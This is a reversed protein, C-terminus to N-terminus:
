VSEAEEAEEALRSKYRLVKGGYIGGAKIVFAVAAAVRPDPDFDFAEMLEVTATALSEAEDEEMALEPIQTKVALMAHIPLLFGAITQTQKDILAKHEALMQDERQQKTLKPPIPAEAM